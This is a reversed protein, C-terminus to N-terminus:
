KRIMSRMEQSQQRIRARVASVVQGGTVETVEDARVLTKFTGTKEDFHLGPGPLIEVQAWVNAAAIDGAAAGKLQHLRERMSAPVFDVVVTAVVRKGVRVDIRERAVYNNRQGRKTIRLLHAAELRKIAAQVTDSSLSTLNMLRRISPWANGTQFDAHSKIAHWVAFANAGIEAALGSVFMDRQQTHYTTDIDGRISLNEAM